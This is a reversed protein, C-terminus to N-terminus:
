ALDKKAFLKKHGSELLQGAISKQNEENIENKKNKKDEEERRKVFEEPLFNKANLKAVAKANNYQNRRKDLMKNYVSKHKKGCKIPTVSGKTKPTIKDNYTFTYVEENYPSPNMGNKMVSIDEDVQKIHWNILELIGGVNAADTIDRPGKYIRITSRKNPNTYSDEIKVRITEVRRGKPDVTKGFSEAVDKGNPLIQNIYNRNKRTKNNSM